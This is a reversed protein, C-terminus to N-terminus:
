RRVRRRAPAFPIEEPAAGAAADAPAAGGGQAM